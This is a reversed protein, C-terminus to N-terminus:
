VEIFFLVYSFGSPLSLPLGNLTTPFVSFVFCLFFGARGDPVPVGEQGGSGVQGKNWMRIYPLSLKGLWLVAWLLLTLLDFDASHVVPQLGWM